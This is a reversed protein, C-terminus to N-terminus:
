ASQLVGAALAAAFGSFLRQGDTGGHAPDVAREPHPMLGLVRRNPRSSAPSPAPPATRTRRTASRWGTRARWGTSPPRTPSTTATTTPSRCGSRRAPATAPPSPARRRHRRVLPATGCVFSAPRRQADAGRAAAGGRDAGPLRQLRRHRPRRGQRLRRRRGHDALPRRHRRLAPLRRLLLRRPDGRPRPGRAAGDGQALGDGGRRRRRGAGRGHRPRLQLRSLRHGGARVSMRDGGRLERDGHQRPAEPVDGRGRGEGGGPDTAALDVEIVKGIRVEGVGEFGLAGLAHRVAEGQPDLVGSKLTVEVRAKM